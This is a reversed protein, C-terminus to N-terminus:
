EQSSKSTIEVDDPLTFKPWCDYHYGKRPNTVTPNLKAGEFYASTEKCVWDEAKLKQHLKDFMSTSNISTYRPDKEKIFTDFAETFSDPDYDAWFMTWFCNGYDGKLKICEESRYLAFHPGWKSGNESLESYLVYSILGLMLLGVIVIFLTLKKLLQNTVRLTKM